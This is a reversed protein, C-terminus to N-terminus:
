IPQRSALAALHGKLAELALARDAPYTAVKARVLIADEDSAVVLRGLYADQKALRLHFVGDEDMRRDCEEALRAALGAEALRELLRRAAGSKLSLELALIVNKHHGELAEEEPAEDVGAAFALAQKVRARDETAHAFARVTMWHFKPAPAV